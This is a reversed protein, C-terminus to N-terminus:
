QETEKYPTFVTVDVRTGDDLRTGLDNCIIKRIEKRFSIDAQHVAARVASKMYKMDFHTDGVEFLEMHLMVAAEYRKSLEDLLYDHSTGDTGKGRLLLSMCVYYDLNHLAAQRSVAMCSFTERYAEVEMHHFYKHGKGSDFVDHAREQAPTVHVGETVSTTTM